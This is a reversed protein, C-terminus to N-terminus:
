TAYFLYVGRCLLLSVGIWLSLWYFLVTAPRYRRVPSRGRFLLPLWLCAHVFLGFPLIPWLPWSGNEFFLRTLMMSFQGTVTWPLVWLPHESWNTQGIHLHVLYNSLGFLVVFGGYLLKSSRSPAQDPMFYWLFLCSIGALLLTFFVGVFVGPIRDSLPYSFVGSAAIILGLIFFV